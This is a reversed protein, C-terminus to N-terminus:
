KRPQDDNENALEDTEEELEDAAEEVEDAADNAGEATEQEITEAGEEVDNGFETAEAEVDNGFERAEYEAENGLEETERETAEVGQEIDNGLERAETGAAAAGAEIDNGLEMTETEIDQGLEEAEYEVENGYEDLERDYVEDTGEMNEDVGGLAGGTAEGLADMETDDQLEPVEQDPDIITEESEAEMDFGREPARDRGRMGRTMDRTGDQIRRSFPVTMTGAYPSMTAFNDPTVNVSYGVDTEADGEAVAIDAYPLAYREDEYAVVIDELRGESSMILDEVEVTEDSSALQIEADRLESLLTNGNEGIVFDERSWPALAQIAEKDKAIEFRLTDGDRMPTLENFAVVYTEEGLGAFGGSEIIADTAMGSDDVIVDILDAVEDGEKDFVDADILEYGYVETGFGQGMRDLAPDVNATDGSDMGDTQMDGEYSQEGTTNVDGDMPMDSDQYAPDYEGAPEDYNQGTAPDFRTEEDGMEPGDFDEGEGAPPEYGDDEDMDQMDLEDSADDDEDSAEYEDDMGSMDETDLRDMDAPEDDAPSMTPQADMDDGDAPPVDPTTSSDPSTQQRNGEADMDMQRDAADMDEAATQEAGAMDSQGGETTTQLVVENLKEASDVEDLEDEELEELEAPIEAGPEVYQEPNQVDQTEQAYAGSLLLTSIATSCLLTKM